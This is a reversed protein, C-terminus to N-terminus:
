KDGGVQFFQNHEFKKRKFSFFDQGKNLFNDGSRNPLADWDDAGCKETHNDVCVIIYPLAAREPPTVM